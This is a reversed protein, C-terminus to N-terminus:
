FQCKGNSKLRLGKETVYEANKKWWSKRMTRNNWQKKKWVRRMEKVMKDCEAGEDLCSTNATFHQRSM